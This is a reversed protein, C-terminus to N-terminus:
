ESGKLKGAQVWQSVLDGYVALELDSYLRIVVADPLPMVNVILTAAIGTERDMWWHSNCMGQWMMSGKKRKGTVDETNVIGGLGHDVATGPPFESVMGDRFMDTLYKLMGHQVEDLQPRFMEDVSEKSLIISGVEGDQTNSNSNGAKLLAQLLRAHDDATTWLGAGGSEVPPDVPVPLPCNSLEGTASDRVSCPVKRNETIIRDDALLHTLSRFTTDTIGLPAFIHSAMYEGLTQGTVKELVQGAWDIASGYFWGEGPPFKLPTTWGELTYSLNTVARNTVRSWRLLDPDAIDYGLGVTHTLLHRLTIPKDNDELIPHEDDTFGKLIQMQALEPVLKRLDDDDLNILGREVLQMLCTVTFIKTMSAVWTFSNPSFETASPALSTYGAAGRYLIEDKSVVVFAAGLVKDKTTAGDGRAAVYESLIRDINKNPTM